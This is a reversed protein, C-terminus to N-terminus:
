ARPGGGRCFLAKGSARQSPDATLLRWSFRCAEPKVSAAPQTVFHAEIIAIGGIIGTTIISAGVQISRAIILMIAIPVGILTIVITRGTIPTLVIPAIGGMGIHGIIHMAILLIATAPMIATRIAMATVAM